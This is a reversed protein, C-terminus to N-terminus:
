LLDSLSNATVVDGKKYEARSKEVSKLLEQESILDADLEVLHKIYGSVSSYGRKKSLTKMKKSITEPLSLSTVQRM